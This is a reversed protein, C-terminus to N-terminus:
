CRKILIELWTQLTWVKPSSKKDPALERHQFALGTSEKMSLFIVHRGIIGLAPADVRLGRSWLIWVDLFCLIERSPSFGYTATINDKREMEVVPHWNSKVTMWWTNYQPLSLDWCIYRYHGSKNLYFLALTPSGFVAAEERQKSIGWIM